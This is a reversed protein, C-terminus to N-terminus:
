GRRRSKHKARAALLGLRAKAKMDLSDAEWRTLTLLPVRLLEAMEAQTMGASRRLKRLAKNRIM